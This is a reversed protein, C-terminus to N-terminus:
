ELNESDPVNSKFDSKDIDQLVMKRTEELAGAASWEDASVGATTLAFLTILTATKVSLDKM